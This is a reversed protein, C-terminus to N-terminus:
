VLRYSKLYDIIAGAEFGSKGDGPGDKGQMIESTDLVALYTSLAVDLAYSFPMWRTTTVRKIQRIQKKKYREKQFQEYYMVRIISSNIPDYLKELNGFMGMANVGSSVVDTIVLNLQHAWCWVYVAHPNIEKILSQLGNYNGRM